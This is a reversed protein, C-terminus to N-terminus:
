AQGRRADMSYRGPGALAITVFVILLLWGFQGEAISWDPHVVLMSVLLLFIIPLTALQTLWGIAILLPCLIESFLAMWLTLGRGLHLPDDIHQLESSYHVLKPLGHVYFLLLAGALRLYLLGLDPNSPIRSTLTKFTNQM